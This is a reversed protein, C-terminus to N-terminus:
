EVIFKSLFQNEVVLSYAGKKLPNSLKLSYTGNAQHNAIQKYIRKGEMSYIATWPNYSISQDKSNFYLVTGKVPNPYVYVKGNILQINVSRVGLNKSTGNKDIQSLRYYNLGSNAERDIFSYSSNAGKSKVQQIQQFHNGDQSREIIFYDNDTESGTNWQVLVELDNQLKVKYNLLEVPLSVPEFSWQQNNAGGYGWIIINTGDATSGGNVDLGTSQAAIPTIHFYNGGSIPEAKFHQKADTTYTSVTLKTGNGTSPLTIAKGSVKNTIKIVNSGLNSVVWQQGSAIQNTSVPTASTTNYTRIEIKAGDTNVDNNEVGITKNSAKSILKYVGDALNIPLAAVQFNINSITYTKGQVTPFSIEDNSIVSFAVTQGDNDTVVATNIDKYYITCTKGSGSYITASTSAGSAWNIGVTFNGNAKLGSVSGNPWDSPIAPLLQIKELHSQLMMETMGATAGFNGDIQFPPHADLLNEYAGGAYGGDNATVTTNQLASSILSHARNGDLLRAWLSIKWARSWGPGVDGRANLSKKAAEAYTSNLLPSIAKGPYLAILHSLHRHTNGPNTNDSNSYKWERIQGWTGIALGNDLNDLKNQLSARYSADVNLAQSAKITNTFLDWILQQAYAVGNEWPGQEPSWENPAEWKGNGDLVLKNMWYDCASKMAPYAKNALYNADQTFEYHQWLHLSYWANAPNNWNWDSYGFINTQTKLTWGPQGQSSAYNRFSPQVMAENYIYDTFSTHCESLNAIEAPWYNMQVNINTHIDAEWPPTNSNNWLGQLNSPLALGNRASSVMLYRGFQYYLVELATNIVGSNYMAQLQNTPVSPTSNGLNLNVRNMLSSFDNQHASLLTPYNKAAVTTNQNTILNSLQTPTIGIYGNASPDYNTGLTLILTATNANSVVLKGADETITGGDNLISLQAEYGLITVSGKFTIKNGVINKTGSHADILDAEFSIKGSGSSSLRMIIANDVYSCFYERQYDVGDVSYNVSSVGNSLNLDRRYNVITKSPTLDPFNLYLDGFNQYAGRITPSGTWLTKDNFQIHEQPIGGYIMAGIRGNGIPLASTMWNTAPSRYWLSLNSSPASAQGSYSQAFLGNFVQSMLLCALIIRKKM